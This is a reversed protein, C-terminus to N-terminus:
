SPSSIPRTPTARGNESTVNLACRLRNKPRPRLTFEDTGPM